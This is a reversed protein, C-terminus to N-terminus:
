GFHIRKRPPLFVNILASLECGPNAMLGGVLFSLGLLLLAVYGVLGAGETGLHLAVALVILGFGARTLRGVLLPRLKRPDQDLVKM